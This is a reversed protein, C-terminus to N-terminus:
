HWILWALNAALLLIGGVACVSWFVRWGRSADQEVFIAGITIALILSVMTAIFIFEWQDQLDSAHEPSMERGLLHYHYLCLCVGIVFIAAVSSTAIALRPKPWGKLLLSAIAALASGIALALNSANAEWQPYTLHTGSFLGIWQAGVAVIQGPVFARLFRFV